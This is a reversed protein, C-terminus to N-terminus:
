KSGLAITYILLLVSVNKSLNISKNQLWNLVKSAIENSETEKNLRM